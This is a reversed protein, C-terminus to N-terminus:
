LFIHSGWQFMEACRSVLRFVGLSHYLYTASFFLIHKVEYAALQNREFSEPAPWHTAWCWPWSERPSALQRAQPRGQSHPSLWVFVFVFLASKLTQCNFFVSICLRSTLILRIYLCNCFVCICLLTCVPICHFSWIVPFSFIPDFFRFWKMSICRDRFEFYVRLLHTNQITIDDVHTNGSGIGNQGADDSCWVIKTCLQHLVQKSNKDKQIMRLFFVM